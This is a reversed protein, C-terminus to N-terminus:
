DGGHKNLQLASILNTRAELWLAGVRGCDGANRHTGYGEKSCTKANSYAQRELLRLTEIETM